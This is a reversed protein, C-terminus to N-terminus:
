GGGKRLRDVEQALREVDPNGPAAARLAAIAREAGAFDRLDFALVVAENFRSQWHAPATRQAARFLELAREFQGQSRLAIGLDTMVDPNGPELGLYREYLAQARPWNAIDFNLNALALLAQRDNPDRELVARLRDIEAMRPDGAGAPEGGTAAAAHADGPAVRPPQVGAMQEHAVYGALFGALLGILLFLAHDRHL